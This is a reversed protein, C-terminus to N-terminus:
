SSAFAEEKKHLVLRKKLLEADERFTEYLYPPPNAM